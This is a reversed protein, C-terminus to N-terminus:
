EPHIHGWAPGPPIRPYVVIWRSTCTHPGIDALLQHVPPTEPLKVVHSTYMYKGKRGQVFQVRVRYMSTGM